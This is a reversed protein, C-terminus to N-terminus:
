TACGEPKKVDGKFSYTITGIQVGNFKSNVAARAANPLSLMSAAPFAASAIKVFDRRTHNM